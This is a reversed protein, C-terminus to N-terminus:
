DVACSGCVIGQRCLVAHIRERVHNHEVGTAPHDVVAACNYIFITELLQDVAKM